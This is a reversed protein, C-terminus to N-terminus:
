RWSFKQFISVLGFPLKGFTKVYAILRRFFLQLVRQNQQGEGRIDAAFVALVTAFVM